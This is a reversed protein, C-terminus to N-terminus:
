VSIPPDEGSMVDYRTIVRPWNWCRRCYVIVITAYFCLVMIGFKGEWILGDDRELAQFTTMYISPHTNYTYM